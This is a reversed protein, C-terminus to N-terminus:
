KSLEEKVRENEKRLSYVIKELEGQDIPIPEISKQAESLLKEAMIKQRDLENQFNVQDKLQQLEMM